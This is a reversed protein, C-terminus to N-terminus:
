EEFIKDDKGSNWFSLSSEVTKYYDENFSNDEFIIEEEHKPFVELILKSHYVVLYKINNKKAEKWLFTINDRFKKLNIIKTKM